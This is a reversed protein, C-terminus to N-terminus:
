RKSTPKASIIPISSSTKAVSPLVARVGTEMNVLSAVLKTVNATVENTHKVWAQTQMFHLINLYLVIGIIAILSYSTLIALNTKKGITLKSM